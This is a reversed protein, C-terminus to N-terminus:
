RNSGPKLLALAQGLVVNAAEISETPEDFGSDDRIRELAFLLRRTEEIAECRVIGPEHNERRPEIHLGEGAGYMSFAHGGRSYQVHGANIRGTPTISTVREVRIVIRRRMVVVEDGPKLEALTKSM